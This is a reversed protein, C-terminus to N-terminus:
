KSESKVECKKPWEMEVVKVIPCAAVSLCVLTVIRQDTMLHSILTLNKHKIKLDLNLEPSFEYVQQANEHAVISRVDQTIKM